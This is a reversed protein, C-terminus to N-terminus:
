EPRVLSAMRIQRAFESWSDSQNSRLTNHKNRLQDLLAEMKAADTSGKGSQSAKGSGGPESSM